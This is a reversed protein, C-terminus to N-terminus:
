TNRIMAFIYPCVRAPPASPALPVRLPPRNLSQAQALSPGVSDFHAAFIGSALSFRRKKGLTAPRPWPHTAFRRVGTCPRVPRNAASCPCHLTAPRVTRDVVSLRWPARSYLFIAATPIATAAYLLLLQNLHPTFHFM